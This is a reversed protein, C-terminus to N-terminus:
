FAWNLGASVVAANVGWNPKEIGGNSIHIYRASLTLATRPQWKWMVGLGAQSNFQFIGSLDPHGIDTATAGVGCEFYPTFRTEPLFYFRIMPTVGTLYAAEPRFQSGGWAELALELHHLVGCPKPSMMRGVRLIGIAFDHSEISGFAHFGLGVGVTFSTTWNTFQNERPEVLYPALSTSETEPSALLLSDQARLPSSGLAMLTAILLLYRCALSRCLLPLLVDRYKM